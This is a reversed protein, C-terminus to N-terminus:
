AHRLHVSLTNSRSHFGASFRAEGAPMDVLKGQVNAEVFNQEMESQHQLQVIMADLCDQTIDSHPRFVPVGSTCDRRRGRLWQGSSRRQGPPLLRRRLEAVPPATRVRELAAYGELVLGLNTTGHSAVVDWTGDFGEIEGAVRFSVQNTRTASDISRSRGLGFYPFDLTYNLNWTANPNSRSNLM